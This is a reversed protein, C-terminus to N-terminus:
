HEEDSDTYGHWQIPPLDGRIWDAEVPHGASLQNSAVLPDAMGFVRPDASRAEAENVEVWLGSGILDALLDDTLSQVTGTERHQAYVTTTM